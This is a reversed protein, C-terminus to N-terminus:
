KDRKKIIIRKNIISKLTYKKDASKPEELIHLDEQLLKWKKMNVETKNQNQM